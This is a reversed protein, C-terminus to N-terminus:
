CSRSIPDTQTLARAQAAHSFERHSAGLERDFTALVAVQITGTGLAFQKKKSLAKRM